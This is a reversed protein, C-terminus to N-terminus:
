HPTSLKKYDKFHEKLSKKKAYRLVHGYNIEIM